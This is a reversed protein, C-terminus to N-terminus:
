KFLFSQQYNLASVLCIRIQKANVTKDTAKIGSKRLWRRITSDDVNPCLEFLKASLEKRTLIKNSSDLLYNFYKSLIKPASQPSFKLKKFEALLSLNEISLDLKNKILIDRYRYWTKKCITRGLMEEFLRQQSETSDM